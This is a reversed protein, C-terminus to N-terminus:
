LIMSNIGCPQMPMAVVENNAKIVEGSKQCLYM